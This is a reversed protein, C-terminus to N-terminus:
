ITIVVKDIKGTNHVVPEYKVRLWGINNSYNTLGDYTKYIRTTTPTVPFTEIDQWVTSSSIVAYDTVQVTIQADLDVTRFEMNILSSTVFDNLTNIEVGESYYTFTYNPPNITIDNIMYNFTDIILPEQAQPLVGGILDIRGAMGFNVDNYIPTKTNDSNIIYMAYKLLQPKVDKIASNPITVSALGTTISPIITGTFVEENYEDTITCRMNLTSIDMPRQQNNKFTFELTNDLGQYIKVNRHFVVTWETLNNGNDYIVPIRNSYIFASIKQM